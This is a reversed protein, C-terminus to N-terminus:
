GPQKPFQGNFRTNSINKTNSTATVIPHSLDPANHVYSKSIVNNMETADKM